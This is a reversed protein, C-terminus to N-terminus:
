AVPQVLVCEASYELESCCDSFDCRELIDDIRLLRLQRLLLHFACFEILFELVGNFALKRGELSDTRRAGPVQVPM